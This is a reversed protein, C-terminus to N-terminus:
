ISRYCKYEERRSRDDSQYRSANTKLNPMASNASAHHNGTEEGKRGSRPKPANGIARIARQGGRNGSEIDSVTSPHKAASNDKQRSKTYRINGPRQGIKTLDRVAQI